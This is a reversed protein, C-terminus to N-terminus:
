WLNIIEAKHIRMTQDSNAFRVTMWGSNDPHDIALMAGYEVTSIRTGPRVRLHLNPVTYKQNGHTM